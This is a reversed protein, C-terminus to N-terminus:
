VQKKTAKIFTQTLMDIRQHCREIGGQGSSLGNLTLILFEAAEEPSAYIPPLDIKGQTQSQALAQSLHLQFTELAKVSIDGALKSNTDILEMGHPSESLLGVFHQTWARFASVLRDILAQEDNLAAEIQDLAHHHLAESITRLVAPKNKFYTYVSPRSVQAEVAIDEMSTKQYGYTAFRTLAAQLIQGRTQETDFIQINTM